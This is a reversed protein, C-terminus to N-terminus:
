PARSLLSVRGRIASSVTNYVPIRQDAGTLQLVRAVPRQPSALAMSGGQAMLLAQTELLARAGAVGIFQLRSLDAVIRRVRGEVQACLVDWAHQVTRADLEGHLAVVVTGGRGARVSIALQESRLMHAASKTAALDPRRRVATRHDRGTRRGPLIDPHPERPPPLPFDYM